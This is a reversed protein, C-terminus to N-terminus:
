LGKEKMLRDKQEQFEKESIDGRLRRDIIDRLMKKLDSSASDDSRDSPAINDLRKKLVDVSRLLAAESKLESLSLKLPANGYWHTYDPNQHFAGKVANMYHFQKMRFYISEAASINEYLMHPGTVINRGFLPHIPREEAAPYLLKENKLEEVLSFAESVIASSQKGIMDADELSRSAMSRTHCSSCIDLM